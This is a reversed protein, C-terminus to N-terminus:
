TLWGEKNVFTYDAETVASFAFRSAVAGIAPDDNCQTRERTKNAAGVLFHGAAAAFQETANIAITTRISSKVLGDKNWSTGMTKM